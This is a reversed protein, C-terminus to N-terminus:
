PMLVKQHAPTRHGRESTTTGMPAASRLERGDQRGGKQCPRHRPARVPDGSRDDEALIHGATGAAGALPLQASTFGTIERGQEVSYM